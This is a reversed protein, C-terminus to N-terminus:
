VRVASGVGFLGRPRVILVLMIVLFASIDMLATSLYRGFLMEAVGMLMGAVIVGGVSGFGGLVAAAFGKLLLKVGMDPDLFILPAALVGAVAGAAAALAWTVSYVRGTNIGVLRAGTPNQATARIRKGLVTYYLFFFFVTTLLAAVLLVLLHQLSLPIGGVVIWNTQFVPPFTRVTDGWPVRAVGRLAVSLGVTVMVIAVEKSELALGTGTAIPRVLYKEVIAGVLAGGVVAIFLAVSYPFGLIDYAAFGIFAGVMFFEGHSFNPIKQANYILVLGLGVLAYLCGNALGAALLSWIEM